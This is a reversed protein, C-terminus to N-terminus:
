TIATVLVTARSNLLVELISPSTQELLLALTVFCFEMPVVIDINTGIM